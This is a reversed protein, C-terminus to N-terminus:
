SMDFHDGSSDQFPQKSTSFLYSWIEDAKGFPFGGGQCSACICLPHGMQFPKEVTKWGSFEESCPRVGLNHPGKIAVLTDNLEPKANNRWFRPVLLVRAQDAIRIAV